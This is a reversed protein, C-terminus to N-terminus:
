EIKLKDSIVHFMSYIKASPLVFICAFPFAYFTLSLISLLVFEIIAFYEFYEFFNRSIEVDEGERMVYDHHRRQPFLLFVFFSSLFFFYLLLLFIFLIFINYILLDVGHIFKYTCPSATYFISTFFSIFFPSCLSFYNFGRYKFSIARVLRM